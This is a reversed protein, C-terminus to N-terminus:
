IGENIVGECLDVVGFTKTRAVLLGDRSREVALDAGVEQGLDDPDLMLNAVVLQLTAM